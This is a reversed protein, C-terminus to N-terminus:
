GHFTQLHFAHFATTQDNEPVGHVLTVQSIQKDLTEVEAFSPLAKQLRYLAQITSGLTRSLSVLDVWFRALQAQDGSLYKEQLNPPLDHIDTTFDETTPDPADCFGLQIRM